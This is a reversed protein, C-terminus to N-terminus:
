SRKFYRYTLLADPEYLFGSINSRVPLLFNPEGLSIYPVDQNLQKQLQSALSKRKAVDLESQLQANVNDVVPSSYKFWNIVAKTAYWLFCQYFPDDVFAGLASQIWAQASGQGLHQQFEASALKSINMTVGIQQLASQIPVALAQADADTDRIEVTFTLNSQGAAALMAKATAPDNKYPYAENTFWVSNQPFVGKAVKAEGRLITNVLDDYPIAYAIAQRVQVNNFPARNCVFGFMDQQITPASIVNVGSQGKLRSAADSSLDAAIDITGNTLLLVRDDSSPIEQLVVTDFYPKPGWYNPNAKLVLKTGPTWSSVTYAGGGASNKALWTQGWPDASTVHQKLLATDIIGADQDRLMPGLIPSPHALKLTLDYTGGKTLQDAGSVGIINFDFATGANQIGLARQVKYVFDDSTMNNGSAFKAQRVKMHVTVGDADVSFSQLAEGIVNSLDAKMNGGGADLTAYRSWQAYRNKILENTRTSQGFEPDLTDPDGAIGITLTNSSPTASSSNSCAELLEMLLGASAVSAAAGGTLKLFDRRNMGPIPLIKITM